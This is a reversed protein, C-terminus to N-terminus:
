SGGNWFSTLLGDHGFVRVSDFDLIGQGTGFSSGKSISGSILLKTDTNVILGLATPKAITKPPCTTVM